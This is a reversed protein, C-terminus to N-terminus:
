KAGPRKKGLRRGMEDLRKRAERLEGEIERTLQRSNAITGQLELAQAELEAARQELEAAFRTVGAIVDGDNILQGALERARIARARLRRAEDLLVVAGRGFTAM